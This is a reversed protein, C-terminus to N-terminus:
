EAAAHASGRQAARRRQEDERDMAARLPDLLMEEPSM